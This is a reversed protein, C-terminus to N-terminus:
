IKTGIRGSSDIRNLLFPINNESFYEDVAKKAGTWYGYDDIIVVGGKSILPFLHVLEHKTSEYWDTDLRLLSIKKPSKEPLTEEVPGKIFHFKEKPYNIKSINNKVEELSVRALLSDDDKEKAEHIIEDGTENKVSIDFDTPANIGEFTDFLYLDREFHKLNTLTKAMTMISGGKWVGCEVFDGEIKNAMVYEVANILSKIRRASTQTYPRVTSIIEVENESFDYPYQYHLEIGFKRLFKQALNALRDNM